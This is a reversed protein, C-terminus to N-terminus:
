FTSYDESVCWSESVNLVSPNESIQHKRILGTPHASIVRTKPADTPHTRMVDLIRTESPTTLPAKLVHGKARKRDAVHVGSPRKISIPTRM